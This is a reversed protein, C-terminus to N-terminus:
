SVGFMTTNGVNTAQLCRITNCNKQFRCIIFVRVDLRATTNGDDGNSRALLQNLAGDGGGLGRADTMTTTMTMDHDNATRQQQQQVIDTFEMTMTVNNNREIRAVNTMDMSLLSSSTQDNNNNNDDDADDIDDDNTERLQM